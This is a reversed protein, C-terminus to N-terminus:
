AGHEHFGRNVAGSSGQSVMMKVIWGFKGRPVGPLPTDQRVRADRGCRAAPGRNTWALSVGADTLVRRERFVQIGAQAPIVAGLDRLRGGRFRPSRGLHADRGRGDPRATGLLGM